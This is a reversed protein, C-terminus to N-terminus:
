YLTLLPDPRPRIHGSWSPGPILPPINRVRRLTESPSEGFRRRYEISFRGMHSFGLDMAISTVNEEPEARHLAQRVQDFRARRLYAMPSIGKYRRFHELLTRGPVGAAATIDALGIPSTLNAEMYDIARKVDRSAVLKALRRLAPSYNHPHSLLLNTFVLDEFQQMMIPSSLMSCDRECDETALRLYGAFSRGYGRAVDITPEFDPSRGLGAGLLAGLQRRVARETLIVNLRGCGTQSRVLQGSRSPDSLVGRRRDCDVVDKRVAAELSGEVPLLFWYDTREPAARITAAKGYQTYGIYMGPLYAVNVRMDFAAGDDRLSEIRFGVSDLYAQAREPDSSHCRPHNELLPATMM